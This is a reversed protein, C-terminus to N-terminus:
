PPDDDGLDFLQNAKIPEATVTRVGSVIRAIVDERAKTLGFRYRSFQSRHMPIAKEINRSSLGRRQIFAELRTDRHLAMPDGWEFCDLWIQRRSAAIRL